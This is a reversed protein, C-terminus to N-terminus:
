PTSNNFLNFLESGTKEQAEALYKQIPARVVLKQDDTTKFWFEVFGYNGKIEERPIKVIISMVQAMWNGLAEHSSLDEVTLYIYFDTEMVNFTSQGNAYVCDEGYLSVNANSEPNLTKVAADIQQKLEADEHNAWMYGCTENTPTSTIEDPTAPAAVNEWSIFGAISTLIIGIIWNRRQKMKM